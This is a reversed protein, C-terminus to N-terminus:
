FILVIISIMIVEVLIAQVGNWVEDENFIVNQVLVVKKKHPM